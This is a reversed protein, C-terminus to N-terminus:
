NSNSALDTAATGLETSVFGFFGALSIGIAQLAVIMSISVLSAILGYEIVTAGSEDHLLECVVRYM